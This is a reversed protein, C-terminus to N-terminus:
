RTLRLSVNDAYGDNYAGSGRIAAIAIKITRTGPPVPVARAVPMLKTVSGRQAPTIPGIKVSGLTSGSADVFVYQVTAADAQGEWGGFAASVKATVHGAAVASVWGAPIAITQRASSSANQPGGAFLSVGGGVPTSATTDPLGSAGYTVATFNGVTTWGKPAVIAGDSTGTPGLEAGGNIVLNPSSLAFAAPASLSALGAAILVLQVIRKM